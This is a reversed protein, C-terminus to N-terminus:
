LEKRFLRDLSYPGGGRLAIAFCMMGWVFTNNTAAVSGPFVRKAL